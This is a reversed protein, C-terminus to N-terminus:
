YIKRMKGRLIHAYIQRHHENRRGTAKYITGHYVKQIERLLGFHCQCIIVKLCYGKDQKEVMITGDGDYLGGLYKKNMYQKYVRIIL